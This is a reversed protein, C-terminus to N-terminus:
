KLTFNSKLIQIFNGRIDKITRSWVTARRFM